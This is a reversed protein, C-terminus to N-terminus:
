REGRPDLADRLGDGAVKCALVTAALAVTPFVSTWWVELPPRYQLGNGISEGWSWELPNFGLFSLATETLVVVAILQFAAPVVSNTVNPLLHRRIVSPGSAGVARASLVYGEERRQLTESRVIRAVGGWSLLGFAALFVFMSNLVFNFAVLYVVVAPVSLQVDVYGMLLDDVRGGYYGAVVGVITALPVIVGVTVFVAYAVTRSGVVVLDSMKYGVHDTGLPFRWTGHCTQERALEGGTVRGLCETGYEEPVTFGVPPQYKDLYDSGVGYTLEPRFGTVLAWLGVVALGGVFLLSLTTAPRDRLRGAIRRFREPRRVFPVVGYAVGAVVGLMLLWDAGGVDYRAVLYVDGTSRHYLYLASLALAGVVLAVREAAVHRRWGGHDDWDVREFEAVAPSGDAAPAGEDADPM